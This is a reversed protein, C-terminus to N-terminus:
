NPGSNLRPQLDRDTQVDTSSTACIKRAPERLCERDQGLPNVLVRKARANCNSDGVPRTITRMRAARSSASMASVTPITDLFDEVGPKSVSVRVGSGAVPHGGFTGGPSSRGVNRSGARAADLAVPVPAGSGSVVVGGGFSSRFSDADAQLASSPSSKGAAVRAGRTPSVIWPKRSTPSSPRPANARTNRACWSASASRGTARLTVSRGVRSASRRARSWCVLTTGTYETWSAAGACSMQMGYRPRTVRASRIRAYRTSCGDRNLPRFLVDARAARAVATSLLDAEFDAVSGFAGGPGARAGTQVHAAAASGGMTPSGRATNCTSACSAAPSPWAWSRPM